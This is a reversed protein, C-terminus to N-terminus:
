EGDLSLLFLDNVKEWSKAHERPMSEIAKLVLDFQREIYENLVDIKKGEGIESMVTKKELLEFVIPKMGEELQQDVLQSFLMPPPSNRDLIWRCALIPRLVYFYKKYKVMDKKTIYGSYNGRATNLYHYLGSKSSFYNSAVEGFHEFFPTTKYIIPSQSWEFVTPNSKHLLRLAKQIDWGNIDLTEDLQWEIVDRMKELKLYSERPRAYIFRVDYDSDPSAFGWARSGSEVAHLIKVNEMTEIEILKEAIRDKLRLDKRKKRLSFTSKKGTGTWENVGTSNELM